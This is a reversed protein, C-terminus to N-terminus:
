KLPGGGTAALRGFNKLLFVTGDLLFPGLAPPPSLGDPETASTLRACGVVVLEARLMPELCVARIQWRSHGLVSLVGPNTSDTNLTKHGLKFKGM